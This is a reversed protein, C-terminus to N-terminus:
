IKVETVKFYPDWLVAEIIIPLLTYSTIFRSFAMVIKLININYFTFKPGYIM